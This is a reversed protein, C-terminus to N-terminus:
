ERILNIIRTWLRTRKTEDTHSDKKRNLCDWFLRKEKADANMLKLMITALLDYEAALEQVGGFTMEYAFLVNHARRKNLISWLQGNQLLLDIEHEM